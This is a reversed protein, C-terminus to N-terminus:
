RGAGRRGTEIAAIRGAPGSVHIRRAGAGREPAFEFRLDFREAPLLAGLREPWEILAIGGAFAEEIGLEWIEDASEVRYLDFHWITGRASDYTQVLTFTPSPVEEDPGTLARVFARAFATKGAGLDGSLALVDGSEAAAAFGAALRDTAAASDIEFSRDSPAPRPAPESM